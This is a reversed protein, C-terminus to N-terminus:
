PHVLEVVEMGVPMRVILAALNVRQLRDRFGDRCGDDADRDAPSFDRGDIPRKQRVELVPVERADIRTQVVGRERIQQRHPSALATPPM